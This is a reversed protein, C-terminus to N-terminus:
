LYLNEMSFRGSMWSIIADDETSDLIDYLKKTFSSGTVSGNVGNEDDDAPDIAVDRVTKSTM